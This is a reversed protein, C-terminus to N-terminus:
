KAGKYRRRRPGGTVPKGSREMVFERGGISMVPGSGQAYGRAYNFAKHLNYGIDALMQGAAVPWSMPTDGYRDEWVSGPSFGPTAEWNLGLFFAPNARDLKPDPTAIRGLQGYLPHGRDSDQADSAGLAQRLSPTSETGAYVGGVKPRLTLNMVESKLRENQLRLNELRLKDEERGSLSDAALLAADAIAQGMTNDLQSPGIASSVGLLTLPNFGYEAAAQRAGQAQGMIGQRSNEQASVTKKKGFLGGLLSGGVKLLTSGIIPDM